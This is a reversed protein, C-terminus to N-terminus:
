GRKDSTLSNNISFVAPQHFYAETIYRKMMRHTNFYSAIKGISNKMLKIWWDTQQYYTPLIIYELKNYFDNIEQQYQAEPSIEKGVGPGIAWGTIGEICGEIWWGDLISFNLVGNHAAKMGSTGSAEMPKQPTNLWIDVGSTLSKAIELDYDELFVVPIEARLNEAYSLIQRILNKGEYDNPHAKGAFIIQFKGRNRIKKLREIDCFIFHPRKYATMRRAFGITLVNEEMKQGTKQQVLELLRRKETRHAEWVESDPIVDVRTLLEPEHAWGPIYKDFLQKFSPSTWQFSHVGNTISYITYGPFM